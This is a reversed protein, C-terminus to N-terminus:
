MGIKALSYAVNSVSCQRERIRPTLMLGNSLRKGFWILSRRLTFRWMVSCGGIESRGFEGCPTSSHAVQREEKRKSLVRLLVTGGLFFPGDWPLHPQALPVM